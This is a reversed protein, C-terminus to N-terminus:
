NLAVWTDAGLYGYFKSADVDLAFEGFVGHGSPAGSILRLKTGFGLTADASNTVLAADGGAGVQKNDPAIYTGTSGAGVDIGVLPTNFRNHRFSTQGAGQVVVGKLNNGNLANIVCNSINVQDLVTGTKKISIAAGNTGVSADTYLEVITDNINICTGGQIDVGLKATINCGNINLTTAGLQLLAKIAYGNGPMVCDRINITDGADTLELGQEFVSKEFTGTFVGDMNPNVVKVNSKGGATCYIRNIDFGSIPFDTSDM